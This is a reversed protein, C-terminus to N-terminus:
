VAKPVGGSEGVPFVATRGIDIWGLGGEEWWDGVKAEEGEPGGGGRPHGDRAEVLDLLADMTEGESGSFTGFHMALGHKARVARHMALAHAPTAHMATLSGLLSTAPLAEEVIRFGFKSVFSLSGGRWIPLLALDFPGYKSGIEDFFTCPGSPSMYGTDGAFYVAVRNNTEGTPTPIPSRHQDQLSTSPTSLPLGSSIHTEVIWGSWLTTRSDRVGRGSTHQAPSCVFKIWGDRNADAKDVQAFEEEGEGFDGVYELNDSADPNSGTIAGRADLVSSSGYRDTKIPASSPSSFWSTPNDASPPPPFFLTEWWDLEFVRSPPIRLPAATLLAKIGLPVLYRVDQRRPDDQISQLTPLDLHDYHNHSFAVYHFPPLDKVDCPAPLRRRVGTYPTPGARLSFMPDFLVRTPQGDPSTNTPFSILWSAHGLWTANLAGESQDGFTPRIVEVNKVDPYKAHERAWALPLAPMQWERNWWSQEPQQREREKTTLSGQRQPQVRPTTRSSAPTLSPNKFLTKSANAHHEPLDNDYTNM